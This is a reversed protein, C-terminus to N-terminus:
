FFVLILTGKDHPVSKSTASRMQLDKVSITYIIQM